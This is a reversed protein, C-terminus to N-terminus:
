HKRAIKGSVAEALLATGAVILYVGLVIAVSVLGTFPLFVMLIGVAANLIGSTLLWGTDKADMKKFRGYSFFGMIGRYLAFFGLVTTFIGMMTIQNAVDGMSFAVIVAGMLIFIVGSALTAENRFSQETRFFAIVEYIGMLLVGIAVTYNVAFSVSEPMILLWIGLIIMCCAIVCGMIKHQRVRKLFLKEAEPELDPILTENDMKDYRRGYRDTEM